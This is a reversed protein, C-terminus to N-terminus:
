DTGSPGATYEESKVQYDSGALGINVTLDHLHYTGNVQGQANFLILNENAGPDYALARSLVLLLIVTIIMWKHWFFPKM